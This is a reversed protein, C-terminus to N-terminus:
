VHHVLGLKDQVGASGIDWGENKRRFFVGDVQLLRGSTKDVFAPNLTWLDFHIARLYELMPQFLPQGEYLPTLSLELQLGIALKLVEPAGDMVKKEFGQVDMKIFIRKDKNVFRPAITDLRAIPVSEAAVFRSEPEAALHTDLMPLVSSSVSNNAVRIQTEGDWDGIAMREAVTWCSDRRATRRLQSHAKLLPEFSVIQGTFGADRLNKAYQGTNAGVDLVTDVGHESLMRTLRAWECSEPRFRTLEWGFRRLSKRVLRKM